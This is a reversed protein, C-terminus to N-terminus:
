DKSGAEQKALFKSALNGIGLGRLFSGFNVELVFLLVQYLEGFNGAFENDFTMGSSIDMGEKRTGSLLQLVLNSVEEEDLRMVLSEIAKGMVSADFKGEKGKKDQDFSVAAHFTTPLMLKILKLKLKLALRAGLQQSTYKNGNIIREEIARGM